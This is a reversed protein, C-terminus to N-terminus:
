RCRLSPCTSDICSVVHIADGEARITNQQCGPVGASGYFDPVHGLQEFVGPRLLGDNRTQFYSKKWSRGSRRRRREPRYPQRIHTRPKVGRASLAYRPSTVLWGLVLLALALVSAFALAARRWRRIGRELEPIRSQPDTV